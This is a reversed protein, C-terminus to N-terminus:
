TGYLKLKGFEPIRAHSGAGTFAVDYLSKMLAEVKEVLRKRDADILDPSLLVQRRFATFAQQAENRDKASRISEYSTKLDPISGWDVRQDSSEVAYVLYPADTYPADDVRLSKDGPDITLAANSFKRKDDGILAFHGASLNSFGQELGVELTVTGTAKSLASMGFKLTEVYPKALGAFSGGVKETLKEITELFPGALNESVVSFLGIQLEFNGGIWPTPGVLLKDIALVKDLGSPAVAALGKPVTAAALEVANGASNSLGAFAHVIGYIKTVGKRTYPLRLSALRISVYCEGAKLPTSLAQGSGLPLPGGVFFDITKSRRIDQILDGLWSM